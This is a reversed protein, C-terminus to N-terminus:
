LAPDDFRQRRICLEPVTALTPGAECGSAPQSIACEIAGLHGWVPIISACRADSSSLGSPQAANVASSGKRGRSGPALLPPLGVFWCGQPGRILFELRKRVLFRRVSVM